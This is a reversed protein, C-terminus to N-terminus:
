LPWLIETCKSLHKGGKTGGKTGCRIKCMSPLIVKNYFNEYFENHPNCAANAQRQIFISISFVIHQTEINVEDSM